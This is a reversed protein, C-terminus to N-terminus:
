AGKSQLFSVLAGISDLNACDEITIPVNFEQAMLKGFEVFQVSNLGSDRFSSNLDLATGAQRGDIELNDDVLKRLREEVSPM